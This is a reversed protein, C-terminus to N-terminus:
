GDQAGCSVVLGGQRLARNLVAAARGSDRLVLIRMSIRVSIRVLDRMLMRM